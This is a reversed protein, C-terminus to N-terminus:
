RVIKALGSTNRARPTLTNTVTTPVKRASNTVIQM